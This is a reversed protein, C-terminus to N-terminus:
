RRQRRCKVLITVLKLLHEVYACLLQVELDRRGDRLCDERSERLAILSRLNTAVSVTVRLRIGLQAIGLTNRKGFTDLRKELSLHFGVDGVGPDVGRFSVLLITLDANDAVLDIEIAVEVLVCWRAREFLDLRVNARNLFANHSHQGLNGSGLGFLQHVSVVGYFIAYSTCLVDACLQLHWRKTSRAM